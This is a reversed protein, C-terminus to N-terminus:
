QVGPAHGRDPAEALGGRRPDVIGIWTGASPDHAVLNVGGFGILDVHSAPFFVPEVPHKYGMADFAAVTELTFPGTVEVDVNVDSSGGWLIRPAEIAAELTMGRDVVNSIVGALISPIRNSAPSGLLVVRGDSPLFITPAMDTACSGGARLFGACEPNEAEFAELFSNYIMGWGDLAVKAGYSRGLSQTLSVALGGADVVSVHTTSEGEPICDPNVPGAIRERPIATGPEILRSRERAHEKGLAPSRGFPGRLMSAATGARDIRAIRASEIFIQHRELSDEALLESPFTELLNLLQLVTDGGGPSPVTLVRHGRYTTEVPPLERVRVTALDDKRLQGGHEKMDADILEALSGHYFSRVGHAALHRYTKALDPNKILEGPEGITRGDAMILTPLYKSAAILSDYYKETWSIQLQSLRYGQEAIEIAPAIVQELRLRGYKRLALDLVAPTTPAAVMEHGFDRGARKAARFDDLNISAPVRPTGDVTIARGDAFRIVLYTAGGIGSADSDSVGLAFAAAVAADVANGGEELIRVAAETAEPSGTAVMGATSHVATADLQDPLTAAVASVAAVVAMAALIAVIETRAGTTHAAEM